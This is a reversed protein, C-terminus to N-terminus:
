KVRKTIQTCRVKKKLVFFNMWKEVINRYYARIFDEAAKADKEQLLEYGHEPRRRIEILEGNMMILEFVTQCGNKIVHVHIPEHENSFFFFIFGFYEYIKPYHCWLLREKYLQLSFGLDGFPSSPISHTLTAKSLM